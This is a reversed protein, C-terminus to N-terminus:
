LMWTIKDVQAEEQRNNMACMVFLRLFRASPVRSWRECRGWGYVASMKPDAIASLAPLWRLRPVAPEGDSSWVHTTKKGGDDIEARATGGSSSKLLAEWLLRDAGPRCAFFFRRWRKRDRSTTAPDTAPDIAPRVRRLTLPWRTRQQTSSTLHHNTNM